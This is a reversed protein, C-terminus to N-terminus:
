EGLDRVLTENHNATWGMRTEGDNGFVQVSASVDSEHGRFAIVATVELRGAVDLRGGDLDCTFIQGAELRAGECEAVINGAADYFRGGDITIGREDGLNTLAFRATQGRVIGVPGSSLRGLAGPTAGGAAWATGLCAAALGLVIGCTTRRVRM